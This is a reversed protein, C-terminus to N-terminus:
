QIGTTILNTLYMELVAVSGIQGQFGLAPDRVAFITLEMHKSGQAHVNNYMVQNYM